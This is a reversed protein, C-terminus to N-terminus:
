GVLMQNTNQDKQSATPSVNSQRILSLGELMGKQANEQPVILGGTNIINNQQASQQVKKIYANALAPPLRDPNNEFYDIWNKLKEPHYNGRSDVMGSNEMFNDWSHQKQKRNTIGSNELWNYFNAKEFGEAMEARHRRVTQLGAGYPQDISPKAQLLIKQMTSTRFATAMGKMESQAEKLVVDYATTLAQSGIDTLGGSMRGSAAGFYEPHQTMLNDLSTLADYAQRSSAATQMVATSDASDAKNEAQVYAKHGPDDVLAKAQAEDIKGKNILQQKNIEEQYKREEISSPSNLLYSDAIGKVHDDYNQPISNPNEGLSIMQKKINQYQKAVDESDMGRQELDRLTAVKNAFYADQNQQASMKGAQITQNRMVNQLQEASIKNRIESPLANLLLQQKKIEQQRQTQEQELQTPYFKAELEGKAVKQEELKKGRELEGPMAKTTYTSQMLKQVNGYMNMASSIGHEIPSEPIPAQLFGLYNPTSM